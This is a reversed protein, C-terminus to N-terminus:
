ARVGPVLKAAPRVEMQELLVGMREEIEEGLRFRGDPDCQAALARVDELERDQRSLEKLLDEM